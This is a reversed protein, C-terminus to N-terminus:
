YDGYFFCSADRLISDVEVAKLSKKSGSTLDEMTATLKRYIHNYLLQKGDIVFLNKYDLDFHLLHYNCTTPSYLLISHQPEMDLCFSLFIYELCDRPCVTHMVTPMGLLYRTILLVFFPPLIGALLMESINRSLINDSHVGMSMFFQVIFKYITGLTLTTTSIGAYSCLLSCLRNTKTALNQSWATDHLSLVNCLPRFDLSSLIVKDGGYNCSSCSPQVRPYGAGTDGSLMLHAKLPACPILPLSSSSSSSAKNDASYSRIEVCCNHIRWEMDNPAVNYSGLFSPVLLKFIMYNTIVM